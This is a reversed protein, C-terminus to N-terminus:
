GDGQHPTFLSLVARALPRWEAIAASTIPTSGPAVNGGDPHTLLARAIEEESPVRPSPSTHFTRLKALEDLAVDVDDPDYEPKTLYETSLHRELMLREVATMGSAAATTETM